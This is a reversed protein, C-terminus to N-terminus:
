QFLDDAAAHDPGDDTDDPAGDDGFLSALGARAKADASAFSPDHAAPNPKFYDCFNARAKEKVEEADDERCQKTVNPDFHICMRCVHLQVACHPCEDLRALPLTLAELSAGCRYCHLIESM